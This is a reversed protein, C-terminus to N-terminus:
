HRRATSHRVRSFWKRYGSDLAGYIVLVMEAYPDYAAVMAATAAETTPSGSGPLLYAIGCSGPEQDRGHTGDLYLQVVGRGHKEYEAVAFTELQARLGPGIGHFREIHEDSYAEELPKWDQVGGKHERRLAAVTMTATHDPTVWMTDIVIDIPQHEDDVLRTCSTLLTGDGQRISTLHAELLRNVEETPLAELLAQSVTVSWRAPWTIKKAAMTKKAM